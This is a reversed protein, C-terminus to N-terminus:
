GEALRALADVIDEVWVSSEHLWVPEDPHADWRVEVMRGPGHFRFDEDIVAGRSYELHHTVRPGFGSWSLFRARLSMGEPQGDCVNFRGPAVAGNVMFVRDGVQPAKWERKAPEREEREAGFVRRLWRVIWERTAERV